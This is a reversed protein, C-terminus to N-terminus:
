VHRNSSPNSNETQKNYFNLGTILLFMIIILIIIAFIKGTTQLFLASGGFILAFLYFVLSTQSPGLGWNLLKHHLHKKDAAKFPNKGQWLRRVITWIFDLIPLGLILFAIAIKGGSIIALVGLVYGLFLSGGEGLFIRAPHWNFILFGLCCSTFILSAIAIDPQYYETTTTFLFIVFGGIAAVGSVLGDVGDLLKTTYMMALLWLFTFGDRLVTLYYTSDGWNLVPIKWTDLYILDNLPNSIKSIGVGGVIVCLIALLPWVIQRSPKLGYKDDLFGGIMLFFGGVFFGLWHHYDLDGSVLTNRVLFLGIFFAIFIALGGLLPTPKKHIKRKKSPRDLIDWRWALKSVFFTLVASLSALVLFIIIYYQELM